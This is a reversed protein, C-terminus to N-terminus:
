AYEAGDEMVLIPKKSKAGKAKGTLGFIKKITEELDGLRCIHNWGSRHLRAVDKDEWEGDLIFLGETFESQRVKGNEFRYLTALRRAGWEKSKDDGHSDHVAVANLLVRRGTGHSLVAIRFRGAGGQNALDSIANNIGEISVSLGYQTAMDAVVLLLPDLKRLKIAAEVRFKLLADSLHKVTIEDLNVGDSEVLGFFVECSLEELVSLVAMDRGLRPSRIAINNYPNGLAINYKPHVYIAKNFHNHSKGVVLPMLDAFWCRSHNVGFADDSRFTNSLGNKFSSEGKKAERLFIEAMRNRRESNRIDEFFWNIEPIDALDSLCLSRLLTAKPNKLFSNFQADLNLQDGDIQEEVAALKVAVLQSHTAESCDDPTKAALLECFQEDSLFLSGLLGRKFYTPFGAKPPKGLEGTRTREAQWMPFLEKRAKSAGLAKKMLDALTSVAKGHHAIVEEAAKATKNKYEEDSAYALAAKEMKIVSAKDAANNRPVLNADFVGCLARVNSAPLENDPDGFVVNVTVLNDGYFAKSETVATFARLTKMQFSNRAETQHVEIMYRPKNQNPILFDPRECTPDYQYDQIATFGAQEIAKALVAQLIIGLNTKITTEDMPM